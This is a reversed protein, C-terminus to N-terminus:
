RERHGRPHQYQGPGERHLEGPHRQQGLELGTTIAGTATGTAIATTTAARISCASRSGRTTNVQRVVVDEPDGHRGPRKVATVTAQSGSTPEVKIDGSINKVV